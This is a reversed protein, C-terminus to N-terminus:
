LRFILDSKNLKRPIWRIGIYEFENVENYINYFYEEFRKNYKKQVLSQIVDLCDNELKIARENKSKAFKIGDLVSCWESEMSDKHNFYTTVLTYPKLPVYLISATRSIRKRYEFSGDTQILTISPPLISISKTLSNFHNFIYKNM